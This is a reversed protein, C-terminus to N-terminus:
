PAHTEDMSNSVDPTGNKTWEKWTTPTGDFSVHGHRLQIVRDFREPKIPRAMTVIVTADSNIRTIAKILKRAQKKNRGVLPNDFLCLSAHSLLVRALTLGRREAVSVDDSCIATDLGHPLRGLLRRLGCKRLLKTTEEDLDGTPLTLLDRLPLRSWSPAEAVYAIEDSTSWTDFTSLELGDWRVGEGSYKRRGALLELLTTKGSGPPGVVLLREGAVIRLDLPGLLRHRARGRRATVRTANIEISSRLPALEESTLDQASSSGILQYLRDGCAFLKGTRAGQRALQVMPARLMLAYMTFVMLDGASLRGADVAAVGIWLGLLVGGGLAVHAGWTTLGQIRTLAAEYRGSSNNTDSFVNGGSSSRWSEHIFDALKGEKTRYKLALHFSQKAGWFTISAALLGAGIFVLGLKPEMSLLVVTVGLFMVGNTAVHVLFGKLGTKVRATDGVLRAVLDGSGMARDNANIAVMKKFAASRLDRVAAISFRAFFLRELFDVLGLGGVLILFATGMGLAPHVGAPVLDLLWPAKPHKSSLWSHMLAKLPWPMALRIAVVLLAFGAGAAFLRYHRICFPLFARFVSFSRHRM